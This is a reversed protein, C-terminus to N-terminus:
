EEKRKTYQKCNTFWKRVPRPNKRVVTCIGDGTLVGAKHEKYYRCHECDKPSNIM